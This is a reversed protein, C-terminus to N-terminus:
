WAVQVDYARLAEGASVVVAHEIDAQAVLMRDFPDRHHWALTGVALAHELTVPLAVAGAGLLLDAFGDPAELKGLSRKIAVEWAVAASLLVEHAPDTLLEAARPSLRDDDALLWLVAHTDPLLRM